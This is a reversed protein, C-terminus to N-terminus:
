KTKNVEKALAVVGVLVLALPWFLDVNSVGGLGVILWFGSWIYDWASPNSWNPSAQRFLGVGPFPQSIRGREAFTEL